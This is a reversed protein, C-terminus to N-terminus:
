GPDEGWRVRAGMWEAGFAAGTTTIQTPAEDGLDWLYLDQLVGGGSTSRGLTFVIRDSEPSWRVHSVLGDVTVAARENGDMDVRTLVSTSGDDGVVIRERGDPSWLLPPRRPVETASGDGPDIEWMGGNLVWLRLRNDEMWFLRVQGGDDEYQAQALAARSEPAPRAYTLRALETTGGSAFDIALVTAVDDAGEQTVRVAYVTDPTSGFTVTTVGDALQRKEVGPEISVLLDAYMGAGRTGDMAWAYRRLDLNPDQALVEAEPETAFERHLLYIPALPAARGQYVMEIPGFAPGGVAGDSAAPSASASAAAPTPSAAASGSPVPSPSPSGAVGAALSPRPTPGGSGGGLSADGAFILALLVIVMGALLLIFGILWPVAQEATSADPEADGDLDREADSAPRTRAATAHPTLEGQDVPTAPAPPPSWDTPLVRTHEEAEVEDLDPLWEPRWTPQPGVSDAPVIAEGPEAAEGTTVGEQPAAPTSPEAPAAEPEAAASPTGGVMGAAAGAAAAAWPEAGLGAEDDDPGAEAAPETPWAAPEWAEPEAVWAEEADLAEGAGAAWTEPARSEEVTAGFPVAHPPEPEASPGDHLHDPPEVADAEDTDAVFTGAVEDAIEAEADSAATPGAGPMAAAAAAGMPAGLWADFRRDGGEDADDSVSDIPAPVDVPTPGGVVDAEPWAAVMSPPAAELEAAAEAEIDATGEVEDDAAAEVEADTDSPTGADPLGPPAVADVADDEWSPGPAADPAPELGIEAAFADEAPRAAWASTATLRDDVEVAPEGASADTEPAVPAAEEAAEV